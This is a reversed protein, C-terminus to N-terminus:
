LDVPQQDEYARLVRSDAEERGLLVEHIPM